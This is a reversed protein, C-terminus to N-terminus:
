DDYAVDQRVKHELALVRRKDHLQRGVAPGGGLGNAAM